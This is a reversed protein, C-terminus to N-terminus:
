QGDVPEIIRGAVRRPRARPCIARLEAFLRAGVGPRALLEADALRRFDGLARIPPAGDYLACIKAAWGHTASSCLMLVDFPTDDDLRAIDPQKGYRAELHARREEPASSAAVIQAIRNSSVGHQVALESPSVGQKRLELISRNRERRAQVM